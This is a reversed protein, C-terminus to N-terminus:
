SIILYFPIAPSKSIILKPFVLLLGSLVKPFAGVGSLALM